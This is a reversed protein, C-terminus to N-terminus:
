QTEWNGNQGTSSSWTGSMYSGDSSIIGTAWVTYGPNGTQYVITFSIQDGTVLGTLTWTHSYPGGAPYGGVGAINGGPDQSTISMDHDWTGGGLHFRLIWDGTVDKNPEVYENWQIVEFSAEFSGEKLMLDNNQPIHVWLEIFILDNQHLQCGLEVINGDEDRATAYIDGDIVLPTIWDDGETVEYFIDNIKGPVSGTYKIEIDTKFWICPFLNDYTVTVTHKDEAVTVTSSSIEEILLGPFMAQIDAEPLMEYDVYIENGWDPNYPEPLGHIKWVYTESVDIVEWSVSGTNVTGEVTITDFWASYSAGVGALVMAILIFIVGLKATNFNKKKKM